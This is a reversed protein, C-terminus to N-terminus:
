RNLRKKYFDNIDRVDGQELFKLDRLTLLAEEIIKVQRNVILHGM